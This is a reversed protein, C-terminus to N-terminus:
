SWDRRKSPQSVPKEPHKGEGGNIRSLEASDYSKLVEGNREFHAKVLAPPANGTRQQYAHRALRVGRAVDLKKDSACYTTMRTTVGDAFEAVFTPSSV